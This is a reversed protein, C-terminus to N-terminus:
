LKTIQFTTEGPRRHWVELGVGRRRHLKGILKMSTSDLCVVVERLGPVDPNYAILKAQEGPRTVDWVHYSRKELERMAADRARVKRGRTAADSM